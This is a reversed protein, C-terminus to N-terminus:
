ESFERCVQKFSAEYAQFIKHKSWLNSLNIKSYFIQGLRSIFRAVENNDEETINTEPLPLRDDDRYGEKELMKIITQDTNMITTERENM